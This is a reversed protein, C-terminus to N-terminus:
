SCAAGESPREGLPTSLPRPMTNIIAAIIPPNKSKQISASMKRSEVVSSYQNQSQSVQFLSRFLLLFLM